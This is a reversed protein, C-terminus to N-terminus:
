RPCIVWTTCQNRQIYFSALIAVSSVPNDTLILYLVSLTSLAERTAWHYLVWRGLCSLPTQDSLWAYGSSFPIAAWELIGAQLIGYVSAGPSRREHPWLSNSVVSFSLVLWFASPIIGSKSYTSLIYTHIYTHITKIKDDDYILMYIERSVLLSSFSILFLIYLRARIWVIVEIM